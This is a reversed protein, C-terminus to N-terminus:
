NLGNTREVDDYYKLFLNRLLLGLLSAGVSLSLGKRSLLAGGAPMEGGNRRWALRPWLKHKQSKQHFESGRERRPSM